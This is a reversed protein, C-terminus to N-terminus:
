ILGSTLLVMRRRTGSKELAPHHLYSGSATLQWNDPTLSSVTWLKNVDDDPFHISIEASLSHM